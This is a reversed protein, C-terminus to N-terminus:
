HVSAAVIVDFHNGPKKSTIDVEVLYNKPARVNTLFLFFDGDNGVYEQLFLSNLILLPIKM